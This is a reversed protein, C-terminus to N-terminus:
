GNTVRQSPLNLPPLRFITEDFAFFPKLQTEHPVKRPSSAPQTDNARKAFPHGRDRTALGPGSFTSFSDIDILLLCIGQRPRAGM